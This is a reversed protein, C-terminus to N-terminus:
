EAVEQVLVIFDGGAPLPPSEPDAGHRHRVPPELGMLKANALNARLATLYDVPTGKPPSLTARLILENRAIAKSLELERMRAGDKKIEENATAIYRYIQRRDVDWDTQTKVVQIIDSPTFGQIISKRIMAVRKASTLADVRVKPAPRRRGRRDRPVDATEGINSEPDADNKIEGVQGTAERPASTRKRESKPM